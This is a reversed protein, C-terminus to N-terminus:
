YNDKKFMRVIFYISPLVFLAWWLTSLSMLAESFHMGLLIGLSILSLKLLSVEWWHFTWDRFIKM